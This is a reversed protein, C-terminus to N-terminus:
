YDSIADYIRQEQQKTFGKLHYSERTEAGTVYNTNGDSQTYWVGEHFSTSSPECGELKRIADAVSYETGEKDVWGTEAFDGDEASEPTVIDYTTRILGM